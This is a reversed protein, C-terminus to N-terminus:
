YVIFPNLFEKALQGFQPTGEEKIPEKTFFRYPLIDSSDEMELLHMDQTRFKRTKSPEEWITM